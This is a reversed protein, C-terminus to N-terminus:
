SASAMNEIIIGEIVKGPLQQERGFRPIDESKGKAFIRGDRYM